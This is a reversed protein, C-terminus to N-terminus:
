DCLDALWKLDVSDFKCLAQMIKGISFISSASTFNEKDFEPARFESDGEIYNPAYIETNWKDLVLM